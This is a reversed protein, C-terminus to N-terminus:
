GCPAARLKNQVCQTEYMLEGLRGVPALAVFLSIKAALSQNSSLSMFMQANGQSLGIWALKDFGALPARSSSSKHQRLHDLCGNNFGLANLV